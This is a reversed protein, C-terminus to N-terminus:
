WEGVERALYKRTRSEHKALCGEHIGYMHTKGDGFGIIGFDCKDRGCYICTMRNAEDRTPDYDPDEDDFLSTLPFALLRSRM